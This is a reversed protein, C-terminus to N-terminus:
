SVTDDSPKQLDDTVGSSNLSLRKSSHIWASSSRCAKINSGLQKLTRSRGTLNTVM